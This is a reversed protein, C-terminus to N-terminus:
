QVSPTALCPLPPQHSQPHPNKVKKFMKFFNRILKFQSQRTLNTNVSNFLVPRSFLPHSTNEAMETMDLEAVGHVVAGWAGRDM